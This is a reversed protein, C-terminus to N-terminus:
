FTLKMGEKVKKTQNLENIVPIARKLELELTEYDEHGIYIIWQAANRPSKAEKVTKGTLIELTGVEEQIRRSRTINAGDFAFKIQLSDEKPPCKQLLYSLLEKIDLESGHAGLTPQTKLEGSWTTRLKRIQHLSCEKPLDFTEMIYNWKHDPIHLQDKFTLLAEITPPPAKQLKGSFESGNEVITRSILVEQNLINIADEASSQFIHSLIKKAEEIRKKREEETYTKARTGHLISHWRIDQLSCRPLSM